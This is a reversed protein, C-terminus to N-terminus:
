VSRFHRGGCLLVVAVQFSGFGMADLKRGVGTSSLPEDVDALASYTFDIEATVERRRAISRVMVCQAFIIGTLM